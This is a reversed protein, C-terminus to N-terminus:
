FSKFGADDVVPGSQERIVNCANSDFGQVYCLALAQTPDLKLLEAAFQTCKAGIESQKVTVDSEIPVSDPAITPVPPCHKQLLALYTRILHMRIQASPTKQYKEAYFKVQEELARPLPKEQQPDDQQNLFDEIKSKLSRPGTPQTSDTKKCESSDTGKLMCIVNDESPSLGLLSTGYKHCLERNQFDSDILPGQGIYSCNEQIYERYGSILKQRNDESKLLQFRAELLDLHLVKLDEAMTPYFPIFLMSLNIAVYVLSSQNFYRKM